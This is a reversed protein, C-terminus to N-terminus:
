EEDETDETDETTSEESVRRHANVLGYWQSPDSRIQAELPEILRRMTIEPPEDKPISRPDASPYATLRISGTGRPDGVALVPIVLAGAARAMVIPSYPVRTTHGLFEVTVPNQAVGADLQLGVVAGRRLAKVARLPTSLDRVPLSGGSLTLEPAPLRGKGVQLALVEAGRRSFWVPAAWYRGYHLSVLVIGRREELARMVEEGDVWVCTRELEEDGLRPLLYKDFLRARIAGAELDEVASDVWDRDRGPFFRDLNQRLQRDDARSASRAWRAVKAAVRGARGFGIFRGAVALSRAALPLLSNRM